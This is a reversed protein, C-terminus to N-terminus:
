KAGGAAAEIAMVDEIRFRVLRENFRIAPLLGERTRRKVTEVSCCWRAAVAKRTLFVNPTQNKQKNM